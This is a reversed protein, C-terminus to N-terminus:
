KEGYMKRYDELRRRSERYEVGISGWLLIAFIALVILVINWIDSFGGGNVVLYIVAGIFIIMLPAFVWFLIKLTRTSEEMSKELNRNM